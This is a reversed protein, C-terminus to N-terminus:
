HGGEQNGYFLIISFLFATNIYLPLTTATVYREKSYTYFCFSGLM